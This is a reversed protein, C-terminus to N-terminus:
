SALAIVYRDHFSPVAGRSSHPPLKGKQSMAHGQLNNFLFLAM